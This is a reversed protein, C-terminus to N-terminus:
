AWVQTLEGTRLDEITVCAGGEEISWDFAIDRARDYDNTWESDPGYSIRFEDM